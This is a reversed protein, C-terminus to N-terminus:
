EALQSKIGIRNLSATSNDWSWMELESPISSKFEESAEDLKESQAKTLHLNVAEVNEELNKVSRTGVLASVNLDRDIVWRLAVQSPSADVEKAVERVAEVVKM